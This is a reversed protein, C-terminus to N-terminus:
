YRNRGMKILFLSVGCFHTSQPVPVKQPTDRNRLVDNIKPRVLYLTDYIEHVSKNKSIDKRCLCGIMILCSMCVMSKWVTNYQEYYNHHGKGNELLECLFIMDWRVHQWFETDEMGMFNMIDECEIVEPKNEFYISVCASLRIDEKIEELPVGSVLLERVKPIYAAISQFSEATGGDKKHQEWFVSPREVEGKGLHIGEILGPSIDAEIPDDYEVWLLDGSSYYDREFQNFREGKVFFDTGNIHQSIGFRELLEEGSLMNVKTDSSKSILPMKCEAILSESNSRFFGQEATKQSVDRMHMNVYNDIQDATTNMMTPLILIADAANEQANKIHILMEYFDQDHVGLTDAVSQYVRIIKETAEEINRIAIPMAEAFERLATAGEHNLGLTLEM